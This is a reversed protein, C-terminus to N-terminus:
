RRCTSGVQHVSLVAAIIASRRPKSVYRTRILRRSARLLTTRVGHQCRLRGLGALADILKPTLATLQARLRSLDPPKVDSPFGYFLWRTGWGLQVDKAALIEQAFVRRVGTDALGLERSIVLAGQVVREEQAPDQIPTRSLWKSEMVQKMLALREDTLRLFTQAAALKPRAATASPAANAAPATAWALAAVAAVGALLLLVRRSM